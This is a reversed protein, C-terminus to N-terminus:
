RKFVTQEPQLHVKGNGFSYGLEQQYGPATFAGSFGGTPSLFVRGRPPIPSVDIVGRLVVEAITPSPKGRIVGIVPVVSDNSTAVDVKEDVTLSQRVLDGIAATSECALLITQTVSGVVSDAQSPLCTGM